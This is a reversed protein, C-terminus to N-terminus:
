RAILLFRMVPEMLRLNRELVAGFKATLTATLLVYQGTTQKRIPYALERKGWVDSKIISGGDDAIWGAVRKLLESLANEDLDPHLVLMLEYERMPFLRREKPNGGAQM